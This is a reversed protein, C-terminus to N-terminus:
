LAQNEDFLGEVAIDGETLLHTCGQEGPAFPRRDDDVFGVPLKGARGGGEFAAVHTGAVLVTFADEFADGVGAEDAVVLTLFRVCQMDDAGLVQAVQPRHRQQLVQGHQRHQADFVGLAVAM